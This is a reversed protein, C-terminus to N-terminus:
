NLNDFKKYSQKPGVQSMVKIKAVGKKQTEPNIDVNLNSRKINGEIDNKHQALTNNLRTKYYDEEKKFMNKNGINSFHYIGNNKLYEKQYTHIPNKSIKHEFKPNNITTILINNHESYTLPIVHNNKYEHHKHRHIIKEFLEIPINIVEYSIGDLNIRKILIQVKDNNKICLSRLVTNNTNLEIMPALLNADDSISKTNGRYVYFAEKEPNYLNTKSNQNTTLNTEKFQKQYNLKQNDIQKTFKTENFQNNFFTLFNPIDEFSKILTRNNSTNSHDHLTNKLYEVLNNQLESSYDNYIIRTDNNLNTSIRKNETQIVQVFSNIIDEKQQNTLRKDDFIKSNKLFNIFNNLANINDKQYNNFKIRDDPNNILNQYLKINNINSKFTNTKTYNNNLNSLREDDSSDTTRNNFHEIHNYHNTNNYIKRKYNNNLNSLREDDSSDSTRNNIHEIHNYNNTNQYIKRKYDNNLNSLREDDSTDSTRSEFREFKDYHNTNNYIKSKYNNNVNRLREDDSSDENRYRNVQENFDNDTFVDIEEHKNFDRFDKVDSKPVFLSKFGEYIQKVFSLNTEKMRKEYPHSVVNVKEKTMIPKYTSNIGERINQRSKIDTNRPIYKEKAESREQQNTYIENTGKVSVNNFSHKSQNFRISGKNIDEATYNHRQIPKKHLSNIYSQNFSNMVRKKSHNSDLGNLQLTQNDNNDELINIDSYEPIVNLGVGSSLNACEKRPARAIGKMKEMAEQDFRRRKNVDDTKSMEAAHIIRDGESVFPREGTYFNLREDAYRNNPYTSLNSGITNNFRGANTQGNNHTQLFPNYGIQIGINDDGRISYTEPGHNLANTDMNNNLSSDIGDFRYNMSKDVIKSRANDQLLKLQEFDNKTSSQRIDFVSSISTPQQQRKNLKTEVANKYPVIRIEKVNGSLAPHIVSNSNVIIQNNAYDSVVNNVEPLRNKLGNNRNINLKNLIEQNKSLIHNSAM